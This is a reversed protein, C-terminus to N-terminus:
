AQKITKLTAALNRLNYAHDEVSRVQWILPGLDKGDYAKDIFKDVRKSLRAAEKSLKAAQKIIDKRKMKDKTAEHRKTQKVGLWISMSGNPGTLLDAAM